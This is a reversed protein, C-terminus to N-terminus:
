SLPNYCLTYVSEAVLKSSGALHSSNPNTCLCVTHIPSSQTSFEPSKRLALPIAQTEAM